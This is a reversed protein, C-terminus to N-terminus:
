ILKVILERTTRNDDAVLLRLQGLTPTRRTEAPQALVEFPVSFWFRSGKGESSAVAIEGGMMHILQKSIALGLGTGGFRRTISQDGQSFAAFLQQQQLETMGIGTDRVEFRLWARGSESKSEALSVAVVVEGSETFKIANGA